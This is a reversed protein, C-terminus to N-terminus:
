PCRGGLRCCFGDQNCAALPIAAFLYDGPPGSRASLASEVGLEPRRHRGPEEQDGHRQRHIAPRGPLRRLRRRVRVQDRIKFLARPTGLRLGSETAVEVAMMDGDASVYFLEKGDDRWVPFFGGSTSVQWRGGSGQPFAQIFVEMRGSESSTYAIWRGNPSLRGDGQDLPAVLWPHAQKDALSYTWIDFGTEASLSTFVITNGDHSWDTVTIQTKPDLLMEDDGAGGSDRLYMESQGRRSSRFAVRSDDPSWVASADDAPDFTFRTETNRELDEIWLDAADRGIGAVLRRGDHSLRPDWHINRAGITDLKKGERDVITLDTEGQGAESLYVLTGTRSVGFHAGGWSYAGGAVQGAVPLPDGQVRATEPDFHQAMLNMGIKYLLYGRAYEARSEGKLVMRPAEGDLSGVYIGSYESTSPNTTSVVYFLFHRGDPLFVPWRHAVDTRSADLTTVPEPKGGGAAIRYVAESFRPQFLIVGDANWSGGRGDQADCLAIVPGGATDVKYLKGSSYYGLWRGDPSWFPYAAGETGELMRGEGTAQNRVWIRGQGAGQVVFAVRSGDPAVAPPNSYDFQTDPPPLISAHLAAPPAEPALISRAWRFALTGALLLCLAIWLLRERGAGRTVTSLGSTVGSHPPGVAAASGSSPAGGPLPTVGTATLAGTGSASSQAIWALESALDAASQWRRDPDKALCRSVIRDLAAPADHAFTSVPPPDAGMISAILSAQSRGEFARRGTVVEYLLAGFAFIDSRNDAEGGELQEPSMYQWTGVITGEATLPSAKTMVASSIPPMSDPGQKALGFDLLKAGTKTLMVNGPKLDRHVVGQRHAQALAGAIQAGVEIAEAVPLPGRELRQGLTEGALHEM